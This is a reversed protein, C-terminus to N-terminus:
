KGPIEESCSLVPVDDNEAEDSFEKVLAVGDAIENKL